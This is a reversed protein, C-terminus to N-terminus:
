DRAMPLVRIPAPYKKVKRIGRNAIMEFCQQTETRRLEVDNLSRIGMIAAIDALNLHKFARGSRCVERDSMGAEEREKAVSAEVGSDAAGFRRGVYKLSSSLATGENESNTPSGSLGRLGSSARSNRVAITPGGPLFFCIV